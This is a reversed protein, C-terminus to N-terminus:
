FMALLSNRVSFGKMFRCHYISLLPDKFTTLQKIVIKRFIKSIVTIISVPHYNEKSKRSGKKFVSIINAHKFISPIKGNRVTENVFDCLYTSFFVANEKLVKVPINTSQVAKRPNLQKLEKCIDKVIVESFYFQFNNNLNKNPLIGPHNKYKLIAKFTPHSIREALPNIDSFEPIKLNKVANSFFLNLFEPNSKDENIIKEDELLLKKPQSLNAWYYLSSPKGFIKTIILM